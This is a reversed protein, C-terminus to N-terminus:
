DRQKSPTAPCEISPYRVRDPKREGLRLEIGLFASVVLSFITLDTAAQFFVLHRANEVADSMSAFMFSSIAILALLLTLPWLPIQKGIGPRLICFGSMVIVLGFLWVLHFPAVAFLSHRFRNWAVLEFPHKGSRVDSERLHGYGSFSLDLDPAYTHLEFLLVKKLMEPHHWYFSGLSKPTVLRLIRLRFNPDGSPVIPEYAYHGVYKRFEGEPMHFDALVGGPDPSLVALKYFVVTFAPAVRYDQPTKVLMWASTGILFVPAALWARRLYKRSARIGALLYFAILFPLTTEHQTKTALLFCSFCVFSFVLFLSDGILLCRVALSFLVALAVLAGADTYATNLQEVYQLDTWIFVLLFGCVLRLWWARTRIADLFLFLALMLIAGHILGMFRLQFTGHPLIIRATGKAAKALLWESSPVGADYRPDAVVYDNVFYRFLVNPDDRFPPAAWLRLAGLIRAFDRNDALGVPVPGFIQFGVIGAFAALPLWLLARSTTRSADKQVEEPVPQVMKCLVSFLPRAFPIDM